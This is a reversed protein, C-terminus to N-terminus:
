SIFSVIGFLKKISFIKLPVIQLAHPPTVIFGDNCQQCFDAVQQFALPRFLGGCGGGCCCAGCGGRWQYLFEGRQEIAVPLFGRHVYFLYCITWVSFDCVDCICLQSIPEQRIAQAM